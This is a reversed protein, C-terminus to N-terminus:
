NVKEPMSSFSAKFRYGPGFWFIRESEGAGRGEWDFEAGHQIIIVFTDFNNYKGKILL